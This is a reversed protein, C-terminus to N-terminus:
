FIDWLSSSFKQGKVWGKKLCEFFEVGRSADILHLTFLSSARHVECYIAQLHFVFTETSQQRLVLDESNFDLNYPLCHHFDGNKSLLITIALLRQKLGSFRDGAAQEPLSETM